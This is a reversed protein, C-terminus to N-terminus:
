TSLLNIQTRYKIWRPRRDDYHHALERITEPGACYGIIHTHLLHREAALWADDRSFGLSGLFAQGAANGVLCRAYIRRLPWRVLAHVLLGAVAYSGRGKRQYRRALWIGLEASLGDDTVNFFRVCGAASDDHLIVFALGDGRQAEDLIRFCYEEGWSKKLPFTLGAPIAVMADAALAELSASHLASFIALGDM